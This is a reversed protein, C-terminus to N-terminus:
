HEHTNEGLRATPVHSFVKLLVKSLHYGRVTVNVHADSIGDAKLAWKVMFM